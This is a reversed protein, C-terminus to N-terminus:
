GCPTDRPPGPAPARGAARAALSLGTRAAGIPLGFPRTFPEAGRALAGRPRGAPIPSRRELWAALLDRSPEPRELMFAHGAGQVLQLEADPIRAALLRANSVPAMRDQAGHLVLTPAQIRDLRAVTDHYVTALLHSAVGQPRARHRRFFAILEAAREPHERRFADSFVWGALWPRGPLRAAGAAGLGLAGLERLTPRAARPGGPSTAALVLGRVREPFRLALEQAIMGGMSVGLVHASDLGAADLVRVCDAALEPMSTPTLPSASRGAGRNDFTVCDFRDAYLPLVPEFVAASITFGTIWLLPEGRGRREWHLRPGGRVVPM